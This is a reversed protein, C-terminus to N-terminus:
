SPGGAFPVHMTDLYTTLDILTRQSLGALELRLFSSSPSTEVSFEGFENTAIATTAYDGVLTVDRAPDDALVQGSVVIAGNRHELHVMVDTDNGGDFLLQVHHAEAVGRAGAFVPAGGGVERILKAVYASVRDLADSLRHQDPLLGELASRTVLPPVVLQTRAALALFESLWAQADALAPDAAVLGRVRAADASSLRGEILDLLEDLQPSRDPM